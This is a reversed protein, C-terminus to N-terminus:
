ITLLLGRLVLDSLCSVENINVPLWFPLGGQIAALNNILLLYTGPEREQQPPHDYSSTFFEEPTSPMLYSSTMAYQRM